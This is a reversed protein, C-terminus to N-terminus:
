KMKRLTQQMQSLKHQEQILKQQQTEQEQKNRAIEDLLEKQKKELDLQEKKLKEINKSIEKLVDEQAEMAFEMEQGNIKKAVDKLWSQAAKFEHKHDKADRFNFNGASLFLTIRANSKDKKSSPEVRYYYDLMADSIRPFNLAEVVYLGDKFSKPKGKTNAKFEEEIVKTAHEPTAAVDLSLGYAIPAIKKNFPYNGEKVEQATVFSFVILLLSFLLTIKKM